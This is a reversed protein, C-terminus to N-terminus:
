DIHLKIYKEWFKGILNPNFDDYGLNNYLDSIADLFKSKIFIYNDIDFGFNTVNIQYDIYFNCMEEIINSTLDPINNPNFKANNFEEWAPWCEGKLLNYKEICYNGTVDEVTEQNSKLKCSIESFKRHNILIIVKAQEWLSLHKLTMTPQHSTLFFNLNSISLQPLAQEQQNDGFEYKNIWNKMDNTNSPLTSLVKQFRYNYDDPYNILYKAAVSSQPVSYKSLALCNSIFKGGSFKTFQLIIPKASKYDINM